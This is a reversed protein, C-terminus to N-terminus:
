TSNSDGELRSETELNGSLYDKVARRLLRSLQFAAPPTLALRLPKEYELVSLEMVFAGSTHDPSPAVGLSKVSLVQSGSSTSLHAHDVDSVHPVKPNM